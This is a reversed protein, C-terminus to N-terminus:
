DVSRVVLESFEWEVTDVGWNTVQIAVHGASRGNHTASDLLTGNVVFWLQNGRAVIRLENWATSPNVGDREAAPLIEESHWAGSGDVYDYTAWTLGNSLICLQYEGEDVHQRVALCGASNTDMSVQRINVSASIDSFDDNATWTEKTRGDGLYMGIHFTDGEVAFWGEETNEKLWETLPRDYLIAGESPLGGSQPQSPTTTPAPPHGSSADELGFPYYDPNLRLFTPFDPVNSPDNYRAAAYENKMNPLRNKLVRQATHGMEWYSGFVLQTPMYLYRIYYAFEDAASRVGMESMIGALVQAVESTPDSVVILFQSRIHAKFDFSASPNDGYKWLVFEVLWEYYRTTDPNFQGVPASALHFLGPQWSADEM